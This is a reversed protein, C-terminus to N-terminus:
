ERLKAAVSGFVLSLILLTTLPIATLGVAAVIFTSFIGPVLVCVYSYLSWEIRFGSTRLCLACRVRYLAKEVYTFSRAPM